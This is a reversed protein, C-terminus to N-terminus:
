LYLKLGIQVIRAPYTGSIRGYSASGLTADPVTFNTRNLDTSDQTYARKADRMANRADVVKASLDAYSKNLAENKKQLADVRSAM